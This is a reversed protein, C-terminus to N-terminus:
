ENRLAVMPDVQSARRAPLYAALAAITALLFAGLLFTATDYPKVGYLISALLRNTALATGTGALIGTAVLIGSERLFMRRVHSQAAGLAMRVGIERTRRSVAYAMVGYLGICALVVALGSFSGTLIALSHEGQISGEAVEEQTVPDSLSLNKDVAQAERRVAGVVSAPNSATRLAFCMQGLMTTPAQTYPVFLEQSPVDAEQRVGHFHVDGTIGVIELETGGQGAHVFIHKGLPNENGFRSMAFAQDVIAVKTSFAGDHASFDRGRLLPIRMTSFFDPAIANFAAMSEPAQVGEAPIVSVRVFNNARQMMYHRAMSAKVVGPISNFRRLYEDYLRLENNGQYGGVTPFIWFLLVNEQDFGPDVRTLNRLTQVLLGTGVILMLSLAVQLVVLSKGLAFRSTLAPIAAQRGEGKLGPSLDLHTGRFAPALGFVAGAILCIGAAFVLLRWNLIFGSDLELQRALVRHALAALWIGFVGGLGALLLSETLLQRVVRARAAGIALRIAIEQRRASGRALLLNAVNACAISLVLGVVGMLLSLRLKYDQWAWEDGQGRPHLEISDTLLGREVDESWDPRLLEAPMRHLILTAEATAQEIPTGPKLRAVVDASLDDDNLKFSSYWTLPLAIQPLQNRTTPVTLGTFGPPVVGIIQFPTGKIDITRGLATPNGSFNNQWYDYSIMAVPAAGPQDDEPTFARGLWPQVGLLAYYNDSYFAGRVTQPPKGNISVSVGSDTWAAVGTFVHNSDRLQRIVPFPFWGRPGDKASVRYLSVLRDTDVLKVRRFLLTDILSFVATNLGIGLALSLAAVMTFAPSKRLTRLAYRIDQFVTELWVVMHTQRAHERVLTPNGFRRTAEKQAEDENMGAEINDEARMELHSRLEEELDQDLKRSRFVASLRSLLSM